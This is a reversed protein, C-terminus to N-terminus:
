INIKERDNYKIYHCIYNEINFDPPRQSTVEYPNDENVPRDTFMDVMYKMELIETTYEILQIDLKIIYQGYSSTM